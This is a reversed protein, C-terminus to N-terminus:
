ASEIHASVVFLSLSAFFQPGAMLDNIWIQTQAAPLTGDAVAHECVDRFGLVKDAELADTWHATFPAIAHVTFGADGLMRPLARGITANRIVQEVVHHTYSRSLAADRHDITLTAWDPEVCVIRGEHHLTRAAEALVVAPVDVHQLVRDIHIRDVSDSELPLCHIDAETISVTPLHASNKRAHGLLAHDHDIGIVQGTPGAAEAYAPLDVGAGCGLDAIVTGREINLLSKAYAKYSRGTASNAINELYDSPAAVELWPRYRPRGVKTVTRREDVPGFRDEQAVCSSEDVVARTASPSLTLETPQGM